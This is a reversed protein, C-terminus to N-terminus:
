PDQSTRVRDRQLLIQDAVDFIVQHFIKRAPERRGLPLATCTSSGADTLRLTVSDASPSRPSVALLTSWALSVQSRCLGDVNREEDLFALRDLNIRTGAGVHPTRLPFPTVSYHLLPNLGRVAGGISRCEM